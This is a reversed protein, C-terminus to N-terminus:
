LGKQLEGALEEKVSDYARDATRLFDLLDSRQGMSIRNKRCYDEFDKATYRAEFPEGRISHEGDYYKPHEYTAIRGGVGMKPPFFAWIAVIRRDLANDPQIWDGSGFAFETFGEKLRKEFIHRNGYMGVTSFRDAEIM